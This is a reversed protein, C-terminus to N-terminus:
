YEKLFLIRVDADAEGVISLTSASLKEDLLTSAPIAFGNSATCDVGNKEKFYVAGTGLNEIMFTKCNIAVDQAETTVSIVKVSDITKAM